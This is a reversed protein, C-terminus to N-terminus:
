SPRLELCATFQEQFGRHSDLPVHKLGNRIAASEPRAALLLAGRLPMDPLARCRDRDLRPLLGLAVADSYDLEAGFLGTVALTELDKPGLGATHLLVRIAALMAAKSLQFDRVFRQSLRCARGSCTFRLDGGRRLRGSPDIEGSRALHALLRVVDSGYLPLGEAETLMPAQATAPTATSIGVAPGFASSATTDNMLTLGLPDFRVRPASPPLSLDEFAPGGAVSTFYGDEPGTLLIIEVNTGIDLVLAPATPGQPRGPAHLRHVLSALADSGVFGRLPAPLFMPFDPGALGLDSARLHRDELPPLTCPFTGLPSPDIDLLFAYMATNGVACGGDVTNVGARELLRGALEALGEVLSNHLERRVAPSELAATIRTLIDAGHPLQPNPAGASGTVTGADDALAAKISTTGIDFALYHV